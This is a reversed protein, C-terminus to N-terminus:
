RGCLSRMTPLYEKVAKQFDQWELEWLAEERTPNISVPLEMKSVRELSSLAGCAGAKMSKIGNLAAKIIPIPRQYLLSGLFPVAERGCGAMTRVASARVNPKLAENMAARIAGGCDVEQEIKVPGSTQGAKTKQIAEGLAVVGKNDAGLEAKAVEMWEDTKAWDKKAKNKEFYSAAIPLAVDGKATPDIKIIGEFAAIADDWRQANYLVWALGISAQYNKADLDLAKRYAGVAEGTNGWKRYTYGLNIYADPGKCGPTAIAKQLQQVADDFKEVGALTLGYVVRFDCNNQDLETAKGYPGVADKAGKGPTFLYARGLYYHAEASQPLLTAAKELVPVAAQYNEKRLLLEGYLFFVRGSNPAMKALADVAKIAEDIKNGRYLTDVKALGAVISGPDVQLLTAHYQATQDYQGVAEFIQAVASLAVVSKSDYFKGSQANGIAESWVAQDKPKAKIQALGLVALAEASNPDAKSAADAETVAEGSKGQALLARAVGVRMRSLPSLSAAKRFAVVADAPRSSALLAEGKAEHALASNADAQVAKDAAQMAAPGNDFRAEARALAALTDANPLLEAAKKANALATLSNGRKLLHSAHAALVLAQIAPPASSAAQVASTFTTDAENLNNDQGIRDYLNGLAVLAEASGPLQQVLKQVTKIAEEPKGKALQENAKAVAVDVKPDAWASTALFAALVATISLIKM